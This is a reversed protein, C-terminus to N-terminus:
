DSRHLLCLTHKVTVSRQSVAWVSVAVDTAAPTMQTPDSAIIFDECYKGEHTAGCLSPCAEAVGDCPLCTAPLSRGALAVVADTTASRVM